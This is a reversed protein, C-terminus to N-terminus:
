LRGGALQSGTPTIAYFILWLIASFTRRSETSVKIQSETRRGLTREATKRSNEQGGNGGDLARRFTHWVSRRCFETPDQSRNQPSEDLSLIAKSNTRYWHRGVKNEAYNDPQWEELQSFKFNLLIGSSVICINWWPPSSKSFKKSHLDWM